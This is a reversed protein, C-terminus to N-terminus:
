PASATTKVTGDSVPAVTGGQPQSGGGEIQDDLAPADLPRRSIALDTLQRAIKTSRNPAPPQGVGLGSRQRLDDVHEVEGHGLRRRRCSGGSAPRCRPPRQRCSDLLRAEPSRQRRHREAREILSSLASTATPRRSPQSALTTKISRRCCQHHFAHRGAVDVSSYPKASVRASAHDAM